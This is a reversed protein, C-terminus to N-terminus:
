PLYILPQTLSHNTSAIRLFYTGAAHGDANWNLLTIGGSVQLNDALTAVYRGLRDYVHATVREDVPVSLAIQVSSNFPNPYAPSVTFETVLPLDNAASQAETHFSWLVGETVGAQNVSNIRWYYTTDFLLDDTMVFNTAPSQGVYGPTPTLGWYIEYAEAGDAASWSVLTVTVPVNQAGNAPSPNSAQGPLPPLEAETTFHWVTGTTTGFENTPDVRWVYDASYNLADPITISTTTTTGISWYADELGIYIEYSDARNAASWSLQTNLVPIDTASDAPVPNLALGPPAEIVAEDAVLEISTNAGNESTGQHAGVYLRVTGTGEAPAQWNFTGSTHNNSTWHIGNTEQTVNYTSTNTGATIVGANTSGTGVRVSGNFNNISQGGNNAITILYTSDPVYSTPFGTVEVTGNTSGHCSSACTGLSGPAGSYGRYNSRAFTAGALSLLLLLCVARISFM